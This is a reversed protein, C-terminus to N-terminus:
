VLGRGRTASKQIAIACANGATLSAGTAQNADIVSQGMPVLGVLASDMISIVSTTAPVRRIVTVAKAALQDLDMLGLPVDTM